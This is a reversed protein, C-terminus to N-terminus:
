PFFAHFHYFSNSAHSSALYLPHSIFVEQSPFSPLHVSFTILPLALKLFSIVSLSSYPVHFFMLRPYRLLFTFPLPQIFPLSHLTLVSFTIRLSLFNYYTLFTINISTFCLLALCSSSILTHISQTTFHLTHPLYSSHAPLLFVPPQLSVSVLVLCFYDSPYQLFPFHSSTLPFSHLSLLPPSSLSFFASSTSIYLLANLSPYVLSINSSYFVVCCPPPLSPFFSRSFM